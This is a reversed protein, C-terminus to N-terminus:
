LFTRTRLAHYLYVVAAAAAAAAATAAVAVTRIYYDEKYILYLSFHDRVVSFTV